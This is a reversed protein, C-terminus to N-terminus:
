LANAALCALYAGAAILVCTFWGGGLTTCMGEVFIAIVNCDVAKQGGVLASMEDRSLPSSYGFQQVFPLVLSLLILAVLLQRVIGKM